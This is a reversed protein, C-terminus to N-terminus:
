GKYRAKNLIEKADPDDVGELPHKPTRLYIEELIDSARRTNYEINKLSAGIMWLCLVAVGIAISYIWEM